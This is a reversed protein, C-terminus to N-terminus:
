AFSASAFQTARPTTRRTRPPSRTRPSSEASTASVSRSRRASAAGSTARSIRTSGASSSPCRRTRAQTSTLSLCLSVISVLTGAAALFLAGYRVELSKPHVVLIAFGSICILAPVVSFLWRHRVRDSAYAIIMALAFACAWPPVSRLQTEIPGFGFANIIAPAFYAYGYAPVILGFYMFAGILIKATRTDAVVGSFYPFYHYMRDRFVGLVDRWTYSEEHASAGVDAQLRAKVAAREAPTLFKAEEPFDPL